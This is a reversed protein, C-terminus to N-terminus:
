CEIARGGLFWYFWYSWVGSADDESQGSGRRKRTCERTFLALRLSGLFGGRGKGFFWSKRRKMGSCDLAGFMEWIVGLEDGLDM